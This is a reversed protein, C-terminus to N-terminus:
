PGLGLWQEVFLLKIYEKDINLMTYIMYVMDLRHINESICRSYTRFNIQSIHGNARPFIVFLNRVAPTYRVYVGRPWPKYM